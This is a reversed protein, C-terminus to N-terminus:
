RKDNKSGSISSLGSCYTSEEGDAKTKFKHEQRTPFPFM